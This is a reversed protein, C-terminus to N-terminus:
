ISGGKGGSHTPNYTVTKYQQDAGTYRIASVSITKESGGYVVTTSLTTKRTKAYCTYNMETYGNVNVTNYTRETETVGSTTGMLSYMRTKLYAAMANLTNEPVSSGLAEKIAEVVGRGKEYDWGTKEKYKLVIGTLAKANESNDRSEQGLIEDKQIVEKEVKSNVQNEIAYASFHDVDATYATVAGGETTSSINKIVNGQNDKADGWEGTDPNQYTLIMDADAFTIGPIPNPISITVKKAFQLGSPEFKAAALPISKPIDKNVEEAKVETTVEAPFTTVSIDVKGDKVIEANEGTAEIAGAPIALEVKVLPKDEVVEEPAVEGPEEIALNSESKDEVKTEEAATISVTEKPSEKTLALAVTVVSRNEANDAIVVSTKQSLYGNSSAEISYTGTASETVSFKGNSDTTYNKSGVKVKVGNMAKGGSTVTGMIYYEVVPKPTEIVEGEAPKPDDDDDHCAVTAFTLMGLAIAMAGVYFWKVSKM